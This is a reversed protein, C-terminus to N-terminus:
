LSKKLYLKYLIFRKFRLHVKWCTNVFTQVDTNWIGVLNYSMVMLGLFNEWSGEWDIGNRAGLFFFVVTRIKEHCYNKMIKKQELIENLHFIAYVSKLLFFNWEM